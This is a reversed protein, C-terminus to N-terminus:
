SLRSRLSAALKIACLQNLSVGEADAERLLAVHLSIPVRISMAGNASAYKPDMLPPDGKASRLDSILTNIQKAEETKGFEIREAETPFLQGYLSGVGYFANHLDMWTACESVRSQVFELAKQAKTKAM